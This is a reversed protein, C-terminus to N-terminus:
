VQVERQTAAVRGGQWQGRYQAGEGEVREFQVHAVRAGMEIEIVYDAPNAHPPVERFNYLGMTLKGKYGPAIQTCLLTAGSRFLTSRAFLHPALDIPTKVEEITTILVFQGPMLKFTDQKKARSRFKALTKVDPTERETVGLFARGPKLELVEGIRLDFGAGEPNKLERDSLNTVLKQKKVLELLVDPGLIM